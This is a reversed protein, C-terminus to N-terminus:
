GEEEEFSGYMPGFLQKTDEQAMFPLADWLPGASAEEWTSQRRDLTDLALRPLRKALRLIDRRGPLSACAWELPADAVDRRKAIEGRLRQLLCHGAARACLHRRPILPGAARVRCFLLARHLSRVAARRLADAQPM